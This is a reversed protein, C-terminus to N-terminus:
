LCEQRLQNLTELALEFEFNDTQERLLSLTSAQGSQAALASIADLRESADPNMERLLEALEDFQTSLDVRGTGSPAATPASAPPIDDPWALDALTKLIPALHSELEDILESVQSVPVEAPNHRLTSELKAAAAQLETAGLTGAVGKLTHSTREVVSADGTDLAHRMLALDNAHDQQFDLLLKRLLKSNGGINRLATALDLGPAHDPLGNNAQDPTGNITVDRAVPSYPERNGAPIWKLLATFLERPDIPKAIHDNMGVLLAEARDEAMVNATMALIPPQSLDSMSRIKAAATLGDMVPMQIDMLVCEYPTSLVSDLAEQGNVALDVRLGAQELLETAVQRNIANDEVLLVRAGQIPKLLDLDFTSRRHHNQARRKLPQGFVNMVVDLLLSANVPKALVEDVVELGQEGEVTRSAATVLVIKPICRLAMNDKIHRAAELGNMGPMRYDMLVLRFPDDAPCSQLQAFATQANDCTYARFSFQGLHSKLIECAHSNDDVVLVKLGQLDVDEQPHQAHVETDIDFEAEFNFNSGVGPESEVGIRGNMMEVLQRSIALGLGTGGFKRTTSSDAQSFPSFLRAMQEATMGIGTDQVNFKLRAKGAQVAILETRIIIDGRETFKMANNVLNTLVQGLRLPDGVLHSPVNPQRMVLLELGKQEIQVALVAAVGDLVDDLHFAIHEMQLKGAEIKSFDLVDNLIGLLSKAAAHVKDLYDQQRPTLSTRLALETL